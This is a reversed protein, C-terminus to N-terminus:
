KVELPIVVEDFIEQGYEFACKCTDCLKTYAGVTAVAEADCFSCILKESM